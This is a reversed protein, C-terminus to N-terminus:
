KTYKIAIYREGGFNVIRRKPKTDHTKDTKEIERSFLIGGYGLGIILLITKIM